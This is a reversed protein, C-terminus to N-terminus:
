CSTRRAHLRRSAEQLWYGWRRANICSKLAYHDSRNLGHISKHHLCEPMVSQSNSSDAFSIQPTFFSDTQAKVVSSCVLLHASKDFLCGVCYMVRVIIPLASWIKHDFEEQCVFDKKIHEVHVGGHFLFNKDFLVQGSNIITESWRNRCSPTRVLKTCSLPRIMLPNTM